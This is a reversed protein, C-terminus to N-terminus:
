QVHFIIRLLIWRLVRREHLNDLHLFLFVCASLFLPLLVSIGSVTLRNWTGPPPREEAIARATSSFSFYFRGGTQKARFSSRSGAPLVAEHSLTGSLSYFGDVRGAAM